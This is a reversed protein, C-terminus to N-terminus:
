SSSEAGVIPLDVTVRTWEGEQSEFCIHGGHERVIAFGAFLGLGVHQDSDKTSFFPTSLRDMVAKTMGCGHDHFVLRICERDDRTVVKGSIELVKDEDAAPFKEDLAERANTMLNMFLQQIDTSSCRLRPLDAALDIRMRVGHNRLQAGVLQMSSELLDAVQVEERIGPASRALRRLNNVIGSIRMGGDIIKQLMGVQREDLSLMDLLIQAYNIIGTLPNNIEHAAGAALEGVAALKAAHLTEAQVRRLELDALKEGSIDRVLAIMLMDKGSEIESIAIRLPFPTGDKHLGEIEQVDTVGDDRNRAVAERLSTGDERMLMTAHRGVVEEAGYGFIHEAAANYLKVVGQRDAVLLGIPLSEAIERYQAEKIVM